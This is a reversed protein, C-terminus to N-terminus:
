YRNAITVEMGYTTVKSIRVSNLEATWRLGTEKSRWSHSTRSVRVTNQSQNKSLTKWETAWAARPSSTIARFASIAPVCYL